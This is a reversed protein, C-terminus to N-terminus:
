RTDPAVVQPRRAKRRRLLVVVAAIGLLLASVVTVVAWSQVLGTPPAPCSSGPPAIVSVQQIPVWPEENEHLTTVAYLCRNSSDYTLLQPDPATSISGTVRGTSGNIVTLNNSEEDAVYINGNSPDYALGSPGFGVTVNRLVTTGASDFMMVTGNLESSGCGFFQYCTIAAVYVNDDMPDFAIGYMGYDDNLGSVTVSSIIKGTTGNIVTLNSRINVGGLEEEFTDAYINGTMPNFAMPGSINAVYPGLVHGTSVNVMVLNGYEDELDILKTVPDYMPNSYLDLTGSPLAIYGAVDGSSGDLVTLASSVYGADNISSENPGYLDGTEPDYAVGMMRHNMYALTGLSDNSGFVTDVTCPYCNSEVVAIGGDRGDYALGMPANETPLTINGLVCDKCRPAPFWAVYVLCGASILLFVVLSVQVATVRNRSRRKQALRYPLDLPLVCWLVGDRWKFRHLVPM